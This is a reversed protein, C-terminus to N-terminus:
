AVDLGYGYNKYCDGVSRDPYNGHVKTRRLGLISRDRDRAWVVLLVAALGGCEGPSGGVGRDCSPSVREQRVAPFCSLWPISGIYRRFKGVHKDKM